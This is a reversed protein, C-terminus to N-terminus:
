SRSPRQGSIWGHYYFGLWRYPTDDYGPPNYDFPSPWKINQGYPVNYEEVAKEAFFVKDRHTDLRYDWSGIKAGCNHPCPLKGKPLSKCPNVEFWDLPGSYGAGWCILGTLFYGKPRLKNCTSPNEVKRVHCREVLAGLCKKCRMIVFPEGSQDNSEAM